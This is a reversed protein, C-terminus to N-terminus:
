LGVAYGKLRIKTRREQENKAAGKIKCVKKEM